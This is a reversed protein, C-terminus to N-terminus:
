LNPNMPSGGPGLMPAPGGGGTGPSTMGRAFGPPGELLAKLADGVLVSLKPDQASIERLLRIVQTMKETSTDVPEPREGMMIALMEEPRLGDPVPSETRTLGPVAPAFGLAGLAM